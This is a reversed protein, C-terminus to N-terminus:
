NRVRALIAGFGEGALGCLAGTVVALGAGLVFAERHPMMPVTFNAPFWQAISQAYHVGSITTRVAIASAPVAIAAGTLVGRWWRRRHTWRFVFWAAGAPVLLLLPVLVSGRSLHPAGPLRYAYGQAAAVTRIAWPTFLAGAALVVSGALVVFPAADAREAQACAAVCVFALMGALAAPGSAIHLSGVSMAPYVGWVPSVLVSLSRMIYSLPLLALLTLLSWGYVRHTDWGGRAGRTRLGAGIYAAGIGAGIGGVLGMVHFPAWLTVDIGYLQHWYNDLPAALASALMSFGVVFFGLPARFLGFVGVTEQRRMPTRHSVWSDRLIVFLPTLGTVLIGSYILIHPPTLFKDRGVWHHWALDWDLGFSSSLMAALVVFYGILHFRHGAPTQGRSPPAVLEM